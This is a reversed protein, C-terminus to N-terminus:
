VRAQIGAVRNGARLAVGPPARLSHPANHEKSGAGLSRLACSAIRTRARLAVGPAGHKTIAAGGVEDCSDSLM